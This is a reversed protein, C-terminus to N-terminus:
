WISFRGITSVAAACLSRKTPLTREGLEFTGDNPLAYHGPKGSRLISARLSSAWDPPRLCDGGLHLFRDSFRPPLTMAQSLYSLSDARREPANLPYQFARRGLEVRSRSDFGAAVKCVLQLVIVRTNSSQSGKDTEPSIWCQPHPSGSM